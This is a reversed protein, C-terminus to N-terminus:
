LATVPPLTPSSACKRGWIPAPHWILKSPTALLATIPSDMPPSRLSRCFPRFKAALALAAASLGNTRFSPITYVSSLGPQSPNAPGFGALNATFNLPIGPLRAFTFTGDPNATAIQSIPLGDLFVQAPLGAGGQSNLVRGTVDFVPQGQLRLSWKTLSGGSGTISLYWDGKSPVGAALLNALSQVPARTNPYNVSTLTNSSINAHNHLIVNMGNPAILTITLNSAIAGSISLDVSIDQLVMDTKFTLKQLVSGTLPIGVTYNTGLWVVPQPPNASEQNLIPRRDAFPTGSERRITFTGELRIPNRLMGYITELYNGQVTYGDKQSATTLQGVLNMSRYIPFPFPNLDNMQHNGNWDVDEGTSNFQDYPPNNQDGPPLVYGGSLAFTNGVSGQVHGILPVDVPWLLANRSDVYGRVLGPVAPDEYFSLFLDIDPVPNKLSNVSTVTASGRWEGGVGPVNAVVQFVRNGATTELTLTGRYTGKVLNMRDLGVAIIDNEVTTVGQTASFTLWVVNTAEIPTWNLRWLLIGGGTNALSLQQADEGPFFVIHTQTSPDLPTPSASLKLDEPGPYNGRPENDVDARVTSLLKPQLTFSNSSVNVWYGKNPDFDTFDDPPNDKNSFKKYQGLEWKLIVEYNFGSAAMVAAMSVPEPLQGTGTPISVANWGNSVTIAATLAPVAGTISWTAPANMYIWYACGIEIRELPLVDNHQSQELGPRAYSSWSKTASDYTWAREFSNGLTGFVSAPSANSPVVQLAILNWGPDLRITQTQQNSQAWSSFGLLMISLSILSIGPKMSIRFKRISIM